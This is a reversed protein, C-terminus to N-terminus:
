FGKWRERHTFAQSGTTETRPSVTIEPRPPVKLNKSHKLYKSDKCTYDYTIKMFFVFWSIYALIIIISSPWYISFLYSISLCMIMSIFVLSAVYRSIYINRGTVTGLNLYNIQKVVPELKRQM